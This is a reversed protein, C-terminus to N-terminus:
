VEAIKGERHQLCKSIRNFCEATMEFHLRADLEAITLACEYGPLQMIVLGLDCLKAKDKASLMFHAVAAENFFVSVGVLGWGARRKLLNTELAFIGQPFNTKKCFDRSHTEEEACLFPSPSTARKYFLKATWM